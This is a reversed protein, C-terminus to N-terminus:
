WSFCLLGSQILGSWVQVTDSYVRYRKEPPPSAATWLPEASSRCWGHRWTRCRFGSSVGTSSSARLLPPPSACLEPDLLFITVCRLLRVQDDPDSPDCNLDSLVTVHCLFDQYVEQVMDTRTRGGVGSLVTWELQHLQQSVSFVEKLSSSAHPSSPSSSSLPPLFPPSSSLLTSSFRKCTHM